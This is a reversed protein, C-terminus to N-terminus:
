KRHTLCIIGSGLIAGVADALWDLWEGTRPPFCYEQLLEIGGGYAIGVAIAVLLALRLPQKDRLMNGALAAGWCAYMLMHALKDAGEFSPPRFYATRLLSLYLIVGGVVISEAYNIIKRRFM